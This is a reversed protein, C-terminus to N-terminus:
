LRFLCSLGVSGWAERDTVARRYIFPLTRLRPMKVVPSYSLDPNCIPQSAALRTRTPTAGEVEFDMAFRGQHSNSLSSVNCCNIRVAQHFVEIELDGGGVNILKLGLERNGLEVEGLM